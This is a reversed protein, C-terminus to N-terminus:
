TPSARTLAPLLVPDAALGIAPLLALWFLSLLATDVRGV